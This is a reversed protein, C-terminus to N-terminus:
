AAAAVAPMPRACGGTPSTSPRKGHDRVHERSRPREDGHARFWRDLQGRISRRGRLDRPPAPETPRGAAEDASDFARFASPTQNLVTVGERVVLSHFAEASRATQAPVIVLRGGHLLAGWLEWVSFDFAISHFLTLRVEAGSASCRKRRRSSGPPTALQTVCVGNPRGTSASTYIVYAPDTPELVPAPDPVAATATATSFSLLVGLGAPVGEISCGDM